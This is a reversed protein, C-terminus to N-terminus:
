FPYSFYNCINSSAVFIYQSSVMVVAVSEMDASTVNFTQSLFDRYAANDVFIDATSGQLGVVLKPKEPLCLTSNVCQELQLDQTLKYPEAFINFILFIDGLGELSLLVKM